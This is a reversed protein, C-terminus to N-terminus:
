DKFILTYIFNNSTLGTLVLVYDTNMYSFTIISKNCLTEGYEQHEIENAVFFDELQSYKYDRNLEFIM